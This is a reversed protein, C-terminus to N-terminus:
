IHDLYYTQRDQTMLDVFYKVKCVAHTRIAPCLEPLLIVEM